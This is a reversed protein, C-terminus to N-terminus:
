NKLLTVMGQLYQCPLTPLAANFHPNKNIYHPTTVGCACNGLTLIKLKAAAPPTKVLLMFYQPLINPM